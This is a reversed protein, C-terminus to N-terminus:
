GPSLLYLKNQESESFIAEISLGANSALEEVEQRRSGLNVSPTKAVVKSLAGREISDRVRNLEDELERTRKAFAEKHEDDTLDVVDFALVGHGDEVSERYQADGLIHKLSDASKCANQIVRESFFTDPCGGDPVLAPVQSRYHRRFLIDVGELDDPSMKLLMQEPKASVETRDWVGRYLVVKCGWELKGENVLQELAIRTAMETLCHAEHDMFGEGNLVIVKPKTRLIEDKM